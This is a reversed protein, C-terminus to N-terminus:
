HATLGVRWIIAFRRQFIDRYVYKSGIEVRAVTKRVTERKKYCNARQGPLHEAAFPRKINLNGEKCPASASGPAFLDLNLM